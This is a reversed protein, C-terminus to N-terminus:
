RSNNINTKYLESQIYLHQIDISSMKWIKIKYILIERFFPRSSFNKGGNYKDRWM